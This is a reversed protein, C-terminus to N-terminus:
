LIVFILYLLLGLNWEANKAIIFSFFITSRVSIAGYSIFTLMSSFDHIEYFDFVNM